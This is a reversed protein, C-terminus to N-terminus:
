HDDAPGHRNHALHSRWRRFNIPNLILSIYLTSTISEIQGVTIQHSTCVLVRAFLSVYVILLFIPRHPPVLVFTHVSDLTTRRVDPRM